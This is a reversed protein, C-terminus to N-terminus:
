SAVMVARAGASPPRSIWILKGAAVQASTVWADQRLRQLRCELAHLAAPVERLGPKRGRVEALGSRSRRHCPRPHPRRQRPRPLEPRRPARVCRSFELAQARVQQVQAPSPGSGGNPLLHNCARQAAQVRSSSVGLQQLSLKSKDFVGSSNPDPWNPVGNSRMCGAFAVAGNEQASAASANSSSSQTTTSGLTAVHNGPSGGCAAAFLSPEGARGIRSRPAACSSAHRSSRGARYCGCSGAIFFHHFLRADSLLCSRSAHRSRPRSRRPRERRRRHGARHRPTRPQDPDPMNSVGHARICRAYTLMASRYQQWRLPDAPRREPASARCAPGGPGRAASASNSSTEKPATRAAPRPLATVGHLAHLPSPSSGQEVLRAPRRRPRASSRWTVRGALRRM